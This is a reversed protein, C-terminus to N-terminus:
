HYTVTLTPTYFDYQDFSTVNGPFVGYNESLFSLGDNAYTGNVWNQVTSALSISYIQGAYVPYNFTQWSQTYYQFNSMINWTVTSASWYTAIAAIQFNQPYFGVPTSNAELNLTASDITKGQLASVDFKVLGAYALSDPYGWLSYAWMIGVPPYTNPYATNAKSSDLSNSIVMNSAVAQLTVTQQGAATTFSVGTNASSGASNYARVFRSYQTDSNLGALTYSTVNAGVQALQIFGGGFFSPSCSMTGNGTASVLGNCDGIEFGSEDNSNDTWSLTARDSTINSVTPYTPAAPITVSPAQTTGSIAITQASTGASNYAAVKYWYTTSASLGSNTYSASATTAIQIYTGYQSSARYIYFGTENNSNDTWSLTLSSSTENSVSLNTPAAPKTLPTPQTTSSAANSFASEGASNYAVVKYWYTTNPTLGSNVYTTINSIVNAIGSYAGNETASRYIRFGSESTGSADTWNLTLSSSTSYGVTLGTPANPTAVPAPETTVEAINSDISSGASNEAVVKFYYTTDASLGTVTYTQINAAVTGVISYPSGITEAKYITFSSENNSSDTWYLTIATSSIASGNLNAPAQPPSLPALDTTAQTVNSYGSSGSSNTAAVRYYYTTSPLLGADSYTTTDAVTADIEIFGSSSSTESREVTFGTENDSNDQWSLNISGSSTTNATLATPSEPVTVIGCGSAPTRSGTFTTTGSCSYNSGDTATWTWNATGSLNNCSADINASMLTLNTTGPTGDPAADSYSGNWSLNNGSLTATFKNGDGDVIAISNGNQTVALDFTELENLECNSGPKGTETITWVGEVSLTTGNLPTDGVPTDGGGSGGCATIFLSALILFISIISTTIHKM